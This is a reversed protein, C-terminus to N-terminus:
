WRPGKHIRWSDVPRLWTYAGELVLRFDAADDPAISRLLAFPDRRATNRGRDVTVGIHYGAAAAADRVTSNWGGMPYAISTVPRGLLDELESRSDALEPALDEAGLHPLWPHNVTHSGIDLGDAAAAVLERRDVLRARGDDPAGSDWAFTRRGDLYGTVAFMTAPLGLDRLMPWATEVVSAYGDDFTLALARNPLTGAALMASAEDLPLVAAGWEGLVDLHRRFSDVPTSVGGSTRSLRHWGLVTLGPSNSVARTVRAVPRLVRAAARLAPRM